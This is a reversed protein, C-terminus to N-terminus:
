EIIELGPGGPELPKQKEAEAKVRREINTQVISKM